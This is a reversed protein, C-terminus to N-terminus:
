LVAFRVSCRGPPLTAHSPSSMSHSDADLFEVSTYPCLILFPSGHPITVCLFKTRHLSQRAFALISGHHRFSNHYRVGSYADFVFVQVMAAHIPLLQDVRCVRCRFSSRAGRCHPSPSMFASSTATMSVSFGYTPSGLKTDHLIYLVAIDASASNALISRSLEGVFMTERGNTSYKFLSPKRNYNMIYLTPRARYTSRPAFAGQVDERSVVRGYVVVADPRPRKNHVENQAHPLTHVAVTFRPHTPNTPTVTAPFLPVM